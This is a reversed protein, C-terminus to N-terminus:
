STDYNISMMRSLGYAATRYGSVVRPLGPDWAIGGSRSNAGRCLEGIITLSKMREPALFVWIGGSGVVLFFLFRWVLLQGFRKVYLSIPASPM